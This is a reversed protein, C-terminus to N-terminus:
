FFKILVSFFFITCTECIAMAFDIQSRPKMYQLLLRPCDKKENECDCLNQYFRM